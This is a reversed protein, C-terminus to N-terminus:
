IKECLIHHMQGGEAPGELVLRREIVKFDFERLLADVAEESMITDMTQDMAPDATELVNHGLQIIGYKKTIRSFEALTKRADAYTIINSLFRTSVVLDFAGDDFPVDTSTGVRVDCGDFQKGLDKKAAEIMHPSIEVGAIKYNRDHYLPVFRGTGFPIDVVSLKKPLKELLQRMEEHEVHWWKQRDRKKNYIEAVRGYYKDGKPKPTKVQKQTGQM